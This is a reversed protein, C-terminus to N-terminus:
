QIVHRNTFPRYLASRVFLYYYYASSMLPFNGVSKRGRIINIEEFNAILIAPEEVKALHANAPPFFETGNKKYLIITYTSFDERLQFQRWEFDPRHFFRATLTRPSPSLSIATQQMPQPPKKTTYPLTTYSHSKLTLKSFFINTYINLKVNKNYVFAICYLIIMFQIFIM